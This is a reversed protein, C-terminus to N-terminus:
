STAANRRLFQPVSSGAFAGLRSPRGEGSWPVARSSPHDTTDLRRRDLVFHDDLALWQESSLRGGPVVVRIMFIYDVAQGALTRERRVDRNDQAYIGHFKLLQESDNTVSLNENTLDNALDGRLYNSARKVSEVASETKTETTV